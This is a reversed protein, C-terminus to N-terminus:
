KINKKFIENIYKKKKSKKKLSHKKYKKSKQKNKKKTIYINKFIYKLILFHKM